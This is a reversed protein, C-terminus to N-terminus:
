KPPSKPKPLSAFYADDIEFITRREWPDLTQGTEKSWARIDSFSIPLPGSMSYSRSRSLSLYITWLHEVHVSLPPQNELRIIAEIDGQRALSELHM